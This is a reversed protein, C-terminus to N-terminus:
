EKKLLGDIIQQFAEYPLAGSVLQGNVFTAPTGNVGKRQGEDFDSQVKSAYKGADLCSNFQAANLGTDQAWKKFKDLSYGSPQNEFLIDHYEWFKGQEDACESAEAAKQANPHFSLPFHKYVLRVKGAYDSLIKKLTPYHRECFPCEFDSFEVFTIPADFEGRVHNDEAVEFTQLPLPNNAPAPAPPLIAGAAQKNQAQVAKQGQATDNTRSARLLKVGLVVNLSLSLLSVGTLFGLLFPAKGNRAPIFVRQSPASKTEKMEEKVERIMEVAYDGAGRVTKEIDQESIKSEDYVVALKQSEHNAKARVVGEKKGLLDELADANASGRMGAQASLGKIHFTAKKM